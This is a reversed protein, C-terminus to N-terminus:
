NYKYSLHLFRSILRLQALQDIYQQSLIIPRWQESQICRFNKSVNEQNFFSVINKSIWTLQWKSDCFSNEIKALGMIGKSSLRWTQEDAQLNHLYFMLFFLKPQEFRFHLDQMDWSVFCTLWGRVWNLRRQLWLLM